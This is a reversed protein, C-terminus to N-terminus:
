SKFTKKFFNYILVSYNLKGKFQSLGGASYIFNRKLTFLDDGSLVLGEKVTVAAILGSNRLMGTLEKKFFGKPYSFLHCKQGTLGGIIEQSQRVENVFEEETLNELRPHTHTHSGFEVLGSGVMERIQREELVKIPINQSNNISGGIYATPLFITAPFRYKKLIAWANIYNDLYGDDFTLVVTKDALKQRKSLKEVLQSLFIVRYQCSRLYAMQREFDAPTVTFLVENDGISHYMLISVRPIRVFLRGLTSVINFFLYISTKIKEKFM